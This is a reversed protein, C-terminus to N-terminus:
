YYDNTNLKFFDTTLWRQDGETNAEDHIKKHCAHCLTVLNPSWRFMPLVQASIIHHITLDDSPKKKRCEQCVFRDRRKIDEKFKRPLTRTRKRAM